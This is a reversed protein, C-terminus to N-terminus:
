GKQSPDASSFGSDVKHSWHKWPKMRHMECSCFTMEGTRKSRIKKQSFFFIFFSLHRPHSHFVDRAKEGFPLEYNNIQKSGLSFMDILPTLCIGSQTSTTGNSTSRQQQQGDTESQQFYSDNGSGSDDLDLGSDANRMQSELEGLVNFNLWTSPM